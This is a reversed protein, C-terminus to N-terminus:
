SCANLVASGTAAAHTSLVQLQVKRKTLGNKQKQLKEIKENIEDKSGKKLTLQAASLLPWLPM